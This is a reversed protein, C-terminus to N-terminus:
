FDPSNEDETDNLLVDFKRKETSNNEKDEAVIKSMIEQSMKRLHRLGDVVSSMDKSNYVPPVVAVQKISDGKLSIQLKASM